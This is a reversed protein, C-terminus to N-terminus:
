IIFVKLANGGLVCVSVINQKPIRKVVDLEMSGVASFLPDAINYEDTEVGSVCM